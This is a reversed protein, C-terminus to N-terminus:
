DSKSLGRADSKHDGRRRTRSRATCQRTETIWPRRDGTFGIVRVGGLKLEGRGKGNGEGEKGEWETGKEERAREM